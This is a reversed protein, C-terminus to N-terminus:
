FLIELYKYKHLGHVNEYIWDYKSDTSMYNETILDNTIICASKNFLFMNPCM